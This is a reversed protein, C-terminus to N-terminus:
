TIGSRAKTNLPHLFFLGWYDRISYEIDQPNDGIPSQIYGRPDPKEPDLKLCFRSFPCSSIFDGAKICNNPPVLVKM